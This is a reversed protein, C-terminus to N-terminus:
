PSNRSANINRNGASPEFRLVVQRVGLDVQVEYQVVIDVSARTKRVAVQRNELQIGFARARAIVERHIDSESMQQSYTARGAINEVADQLRYNSLYPPSLRVALFILAALFLLAFLVSFSIFGREPCGTQAANNASSRNTKTEGSLRQFKQLGFPASFNM